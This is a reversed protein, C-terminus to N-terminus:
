LGKILRGHLLGFNFLENIKNNSNTELQWGQHSYGWLLVVPAGWFALTLGYLKFDRQNM